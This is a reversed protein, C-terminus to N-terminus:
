IDSINKKVYEANYLWEFQVYIFVHDIWITYYIM